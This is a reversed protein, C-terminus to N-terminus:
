MLAILVVVGYGALMGCVHALVTVLQVPQPVRLALVLPWLGSGAGGIGIAFLVNRPRLSRQHRRAPPDSRADVTNTPQLSTSSTMADGRPRTCCRRTTRAATTPAVASVQPATLDLWLGVALAVATIASNTLRARRGTDISRAQTPRSM